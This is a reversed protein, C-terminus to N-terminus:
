AMRELSENGVAPMISADLQLRKEFLLAGVHSKALQSIELTPPPPPPPLSSPHTNDDCIDTAFLGEDRGLPFSAVSSDFAPTSAAPQKKM